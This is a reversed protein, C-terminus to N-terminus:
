FLGYIVFLIIIFIKSISPMSGLLSSMWILFIFPAFFAFFLSSQIIGNLLTVWLSHWWYHKILYLSRSIAAAAGSNEMTMIPFSISLTVSIYILLGTILAIILFFSTWINIFSYIIILAAYFVFLLLYPLLRKKIGDFVLHNTIQKKDYKMSLRIYEYICLRVLLYGLVLFFIAIILIETPINPDSPQKGPTFPFLNFFTRGLLFAGIAFVPFAYILVLRTLNRYHRRIFEFSASVKDKAKRNKRFEFNNEM